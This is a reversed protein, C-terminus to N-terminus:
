FPMSQALTPPPIQEQIEWLYLYQGHSRYSQGWKSNCTSLTREQFVFVLM